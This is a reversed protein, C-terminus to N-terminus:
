LDIDGVCVCWERVQVQGGKADETVMVIKVHAVQAVLVRRAPALYGEEDVQDAHGLALAAAARAERLQLQRNRRLLAGSDDEVVAVVVALLVAAREV